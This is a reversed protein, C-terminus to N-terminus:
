QELKTGLKAESQLFPWFNTCTTRFCIIDAQRFFEEYIVLDDKQGSNKQCYAGYFQREPTQESKKIQTAYTNILFEKIKTTRNKM